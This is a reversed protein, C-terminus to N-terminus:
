WTASQSRRRLFNSFILELYDFFDWFYKRRGFNGCMALELLKPNVVQGAERLVNVLDNAKNGNSPTFLTYATGTNNSRGTRGIRHIYDESNSPYDYNIVFKVDFIDTQHLFYHYGPCFHPFRPAIAWSQWRKGISVFFKRKKKTLNRLTFIKMCNKFWGANQM